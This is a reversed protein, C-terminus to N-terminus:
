LDLVPYLYAAGSDAGNTSKQDSGVIINTGSISLSKSFHDNAAGDSASIKTEVYNNTAPDLRYLYASGSDSGNDDRLYSGVLIDTGSISVSSGFQDNATGDSATIKTESYNGTTPDQRYLYVSGSESGNDDDMAAGILLNSGFISVSKGFYDNAAGDSATIKTESYNGTAPDIRYLYVSGSSSGKDDDYAAGILLNNGSISVSDGFYDNLAGDSATIKTEVLSGTTPNIRYLYASGSNMAGDDDYSAGILINNGSISVSVGFNDSSAGDSATIKTEVYNGTVPNIRYLYASGSNSGNDDDGNSGIILNNDSISVSYGFSDNSTGDSAIIKTEVYNGTAPDIRYLYASGSNNGNDDDNRAGILISDGSISVSGGYRDETATDSGSIIEENNTTSHEYLYAKGQFSNYRSSGIISNDGSISISIGFYDNLAGDSPTIKAEVYNGTTPSIQYFYAAGSDTFEGDHRYSGILIRDGSNSANICYFDNEAADSATLKTEVLVNTSPNVRYSYASGTNSAVDDDFPSCVILRDGSINVVRGFGDSAAGDSAVIKTEVYNGTAPDPRYLYAAGSTAVNGTANYSGILLSDGSISVSTGFKDNTAGDSAVIKTEVYNGTAPDPRYFYAAGSTAANGTADPSGIVLNLGSISVRTGFYEGGAADSATIKTEIYNGTSPDPRYLYASGSNSATDDDRYAGVLINEGSISLGSGFNDNAAGDSATIKNEIYNGTAPDIRLLYVAGANTGSDDDMSASILINSGSISINNGFQDGTEADSATFITEGEVTITFLQSNRLTGDSGTIMFEYVGLQKFNPTWNLKGNNINFSIGALTTCLTTNTVSSDVVTDYYCTYTIIDNDIDLDDGDDNADIQTIPYGSTVIKNSIDSLSPARNTQAGSVKNNLGKFEVRSETCSTLYVTLLM